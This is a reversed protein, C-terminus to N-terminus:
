WSSRERSPLSEALATEQAAEEGGGRAVIDGAHHLRETGVYRIDGEAVGDIAQDCEWAIPAGRLVDDHPGPVQCGLWPAEVMDVGGRDWERCEGGPLRQEDVGPERGPLPDQDVAGGPADAREGDLEGAPPPGM